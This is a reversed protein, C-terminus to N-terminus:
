EVLKYIKEGDKVMKLKDRGIKELYFSDEIAKLKAKYDKIEENLIKKEIELEKIRRINKEYKTHSRYIQPEFIALNVGVISIWVIFFLTRNM